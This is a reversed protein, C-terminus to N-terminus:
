RRQNSRAGTSPLKLQMKIGNRQNAKIGEAVCFSEMCCADPFTEKAIDTEWLLWFSLKTYALGNKLSDNLSINKEKQALNLQAQM